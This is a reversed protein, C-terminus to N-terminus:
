ASKYFLDRKVGRSILYSVVESPKFFMRLKRANKKTKSFVREDLRCKLLNTLRTLSCPDPQLYCPQV